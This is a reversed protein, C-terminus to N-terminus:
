SARDFGCTPMEYRMARELITAAVRGTTDKDLFRREAIALPMKSYIVPKLTETNAWFLNFRKAVGVDLDEREDRYHRIIKDGRKHWRDNAKDCQEIQTKWHAALERDKDSATTKPVAEAM